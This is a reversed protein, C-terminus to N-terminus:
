KTAVPVDWKGIIYTTFSGINAMKLFFPVDDPEDNIEIDINQM